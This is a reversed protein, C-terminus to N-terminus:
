VDRAFPRRRARRGAGCGRPRRPFKDYGADDLDSRGKGGHETASPPGDGDRVIWQLAFSGGLCRASRGSVLVCSPRVLRPWVVAWGRCPRPPRRQACASSEKGDKKKRGRKGVGCLGGLLAREEGYYINWFQRWFRFRRHDIKQLVKDCRINPPRRELVRRTRAPERFRDRSREEWM